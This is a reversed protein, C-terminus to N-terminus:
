FARKLQRRFIARGIKFSEETGRFLQRLFHGASVLSPRFCCRDPLSRSTGRWPEDENSIIQASVFGRVKVELDDSPCANPKGAHSYDARSRFCILKAEM